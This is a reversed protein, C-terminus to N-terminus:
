QKRFHNELFEKSGCAEIGADIAKKRLAEDETILPVKEGRALLLFLLDGAKAYPVDLTFYKDFFSQDVPIYQVRLPNKWGITANFQVASSFKQNKIAATMEFLSHFPALAEIQGSRILDILPAAAPHRPRSVMQLDLLVSTDIVARM